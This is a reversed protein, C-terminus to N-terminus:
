MCTSSSCCKGATCKWSANFYCAAGANAPNVACAGTFGECAFGAGHGGITPPFALWLGDSNQLVVRTSSTPSPAKNDPWRQWIAKGGTALWWDAGKHAHQWIGLWAAKNAGCSAEIQARFMVSEPESRVVALHRGQAACTHQADYWSTDTCHVKLCRGQVLVGDCPLGEKCTKSGATCPHSNPCMVAVHKCGAVPDCSDMSCVDGDKCTVPTTKCGTKNDCADITCADGDDCPDAAHVCGKAASCADLTCGLGDDCGGIGKDHCKGLEVCSAHGWTDLRLLAGTEKGGIVATAALVVEDKALLALPNGDVRTVNGIVHSRDWLVSGRGDVARLWAKDIIGVTAQGGMLVTGDSRRALAAPRLFDNGTSLKQWLLAGDAGSRLLWAQEKGALVHSGAAYTGGAGDSTIARLEATGATQPQSHWVVKGDNDVKFLLGLPPGPTYEKNYPMWRRVSGAVVTGGGAVVVAAHGASNRGKLEFAAGWVLAATSKLRNVVAQQQHHGVIAITGDPYALLSHITSNVPYEDQIRKAWIKKGAADTLILQNVWSGKSWATNPKGNALIQGVWYHGGLFYGGNPGPLVSTGQVPRYDPSVSFGGPHFFAKKHWLRKGADDFRTLTMAGSKEGITNGAVAFGDALATVGMYSVLTGETYSKAFLKGEGQPICSGKACSGSTACGDKPDCALGDGDAHSCGGVALCDDVTCTKGDDCDAAKKAMCTGAADCSTHGWADTRVVAGTQVGDAARAGVILLGGDATATLARGSDKLSGDVQRTWQVNGLPDMAQLWFDANSGSPNASGALRIRGGADVTLAQVESHGKGQVQWRLLHDTGVRAVWARPENGTSPDSVSGAVLWGGGTVSAIANAEYWALKQEGLVDDSVTAGNSDLVALRGLQKGAFGQATMWIGVQGAGGLAVARAQGRWKDLTAEAEFQGSAAIRWVQPTAKDAIVRYGVLVSSGNSRAALALAAEDLNAKGYHKSWQVQGGATLRVLGANLGFGTELTGGTVLLAGDPLRAVDTARHDVHGKGTPGKGAAFKPSWGTAGTIKGEVVWWTSTTPAAEKDTWCGGVAVMTGDPLPAVATLSCSNNAVPWTKVYLKDKDGKECVGSKCTAGVTCGAGDACPAGDAVVTKVCKFNSADLSVCSAKECDKLAVECKVPSGVKCTGADCADNVTCASGDADCTTGDLPATPFACKGTKTDCQDLTCANGDSCNSADFVCGKNAQCSDATCKSDDDCLVPVGLCQGSECVDSATCKNGDTCPKGVNHAIVGCAGTAKNCAAKLCISGPDKNCVVVSALNPVCKPSPGSKDCYLTGNCQDGDDKADCDADKICECIMAGAACSGGKCLGKATCSNGDDCFVVAPPDGAPRLKWTCTEKDDKDKSCVKLANETPTLQCAGTKAVCANKICAEDDVTKCSVVTAPNHECISPTKAKNCFLTGNCLDGDDKGQCEADTKCDCTFAGGACQGKEDCTEGTTCSNADDCPLDKGVPEGAAKVQWKCAKAGGEVPTDCIQKVSGVPTVACKGAQPDCANKSCESDKAGPCNVVTVPSIACLKTQQNCYLTGNCLDGDGFKSECGEDTKCACIDTGGKCAGAKCVDDETCPNNNDCKHVQGSTEGPPLLKRKCSGDAEKGLKCDTETLEVPTLQCLGVKPYCVNHLCATNNVSICNVVSAPNLKCTPKALGLDCYMTGNCLDGDEEAACDSNSKCTCTDQGGPTCVGGTCADGNTCPDGDDCAGGDPVAVMKCKGDDPDCGNKKCADDDGGSCAIVSAANLKCVKPFSTVDCFMSGNCPNGDDIEGCDADANCKCVNAKAVCQGKACQEAVTCPDGDECASGDIAAVAECKGTSPQCLNQNCPGGVKPDCTVAGAPNAACRWPMKSQDCFPTGACLDFQAGACDADQQCQCLDLGGTCKGQACATDVTCAVGDDCPLGQRDFVVCLRADTCRAARCPDGTGPCDKDLLCQSTDPTQGADVAANADVPSIADQGVDTVGAAASSDLADSVGDDGPPEPEGCGAALALLAAALLSARPGAGPCLCRDRRDGRPPPQRAMPM